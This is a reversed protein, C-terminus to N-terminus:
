GWLVVGPTPTIETIIGRFTHGVAGTATTAVGRVTVGTGALLTQTHGSTNVVTMEFYDSVAPQFFSNIIASATDTTDNYDGSPSGQREIISNGVGGGTMQNATLTVGTASTITAVEARENDTVPNGNLLHFGGASGSLAQDYLLLFANGAVLTGAPAAVPGQPTAIYVILSGLGAVTALLTTGNTGTAVGSFAMYNAYAPVTPSNALPTLTLSTTGAVTCPIITLAGVAAFNEDLFVLEATTLNAFTNPLAM